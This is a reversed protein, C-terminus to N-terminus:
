SDSRFVSVYLSVGVHNRVQEVIRGAAIYILICCVHACVCVSNKCHENECVFRNNEGGYNTLITTFSPPSLVCNGTCSTKMSVGWLQIFYVHIM